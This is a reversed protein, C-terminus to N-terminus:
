IKVRVKGTLLDHMLGSKQLQFKYLQQKTENIVIEIKDLKSAIINREEPKPCLIDIDRIKQIGFAPQSTSHTAIKVQEIVYNAEM